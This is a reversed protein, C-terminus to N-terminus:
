PFQLAGSASQLVLPVNTGFVDTNAASLGPRNAATRANDAEDLARWTVQASV